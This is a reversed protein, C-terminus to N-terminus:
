CFFVFRKAAIFNTLGWNILGAILILSIFFVLKNTKELFTIVKADKYKQIM